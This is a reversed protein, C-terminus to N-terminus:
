VVVSVVLRAIPRKAHSTHCWEFHRQFASSRRIFALFSVRSVVSFGFIILQTRRVLRYLHWDIDIVRDVSISLQHGIASSSKNQKNVM